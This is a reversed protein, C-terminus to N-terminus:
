SPIKHPLELFTALWEARKRGIEALENWTEAGGIVACLAIVVISLLPHPKTREICPDELAAFHEALSAITKGAM